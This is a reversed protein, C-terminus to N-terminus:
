TATPDTKDSVSQPLLWQLIFGNAPEGRLTPAFALIVQWLATHAWEVAAIDVPLGPHQQISALLAEAEEAGCNGALIIANQELTVSM